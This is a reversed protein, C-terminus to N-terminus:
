LLTFLFVHSIQKQVANLNLHSGPIMNVEANFHIIFTAVPFQVYCM